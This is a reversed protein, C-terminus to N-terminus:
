RSSEFSVEPASIKFDQILRRVEDISQAVNMSKRFEAADPFGKLYWPGIRRMYFVVTQENRYKLELELHRLLAKKKEEGTPEPPPEKGAVRDAVQKFIWPNGLGGRGIM